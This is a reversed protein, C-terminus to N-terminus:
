KKIKVKIKKSLSMGEKKIIVEEDDHLIYDKDKHQGVNPMGELTKIVEEEMDKGVVKLFPDMGSAGGEDRLVKELDKPNVHTYGKKALRHHDDEVKTRESKGTKPDYMVHPKFEEDLSENKKKSKNGYNAAGVKRCQVLRGSAYASPWVKASKKVKHYCADKKGEETIEEIALELEETIISRLEEHTLNM